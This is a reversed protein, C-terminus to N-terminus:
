QSLQCLMMMRKIEQTDMIQKACRLSCKEKGCFVCCTLRSGNGCSFSCERTAVNFFDSSITCRAMRCFSTM